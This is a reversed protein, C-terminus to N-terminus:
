NLEMKISEQNELEDYLHNLDFIKKIEKDKISGLSAETGILIMKEKHHNLENIYEDYIKSNENTPIYTILLDPNLDKIALEISNISQNPGIYFTQFGKELLILNSFLLGIENFEGEPLFLLANNKKNIYYAAGDILAYFKRKLLNKMYYFQVPKEHEDKIVDYIRYLFPYLVFEYFEKRSLKKITTNIIFNFRTENYTLCSAVLQNIIDENTEKKILDTLLEIEVKTQLKEDEWTCIEEIKYKSNLHFLTAINLIRHLDNSSFQNKIEKEHLQFVNYKKSWYSITKDPLRSLYSLQEISFRNM